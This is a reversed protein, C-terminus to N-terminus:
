PLVRLEHPQFECLQEELLNLEDELNVLEIYDEWTPHEPLTGNEIRDRLEEASHVNYRSLMEFREAMLARKRAQLYSILSERVLTDEPIGLRESIIRLTAAVEM